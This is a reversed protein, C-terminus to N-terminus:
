PFVLACFFILDVQMSMANYFFVLYNRLHYFVQQVNISLEVFGMLNCMM